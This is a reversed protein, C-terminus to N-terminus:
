FDALAKTNAVALLRRVSRIRLSFTTGIAAMASGSETPSSASSGSCSRVSMALSLKAPQLIREVLQRRAMALRNNESADLPKRAPFNRRSHADGFPRDGLM